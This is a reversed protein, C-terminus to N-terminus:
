SPSVIDSGALTRCTTFGSHPRDSCPLYRELLGAPLCTCSRIHAIFSSLSLAPGQLGTLQAQMLRSYKSAVCLSLQEEGGLCCPKCSGSVAQLLAMGTNAIGDRNNCHSSFPLTWVLSLLAGAWRMFPGFQEVIVAPLLLHTRKRLHTHWWVCGLSEALPDAQGAGVELKVDLWLYAWKEQLRHGVTTQLRAYFSSAGTSLLSLAHCQRSQPPSLQSCMIVEEHDGVVATGDSM